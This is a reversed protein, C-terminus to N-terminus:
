DGASDEGASHGAQRRLEYRAVAAHHSRLQLRRHLLESPKWCPAPITDDIFELLKTVIVTQRTSPLKSVFNVLSPPVFEVLGGTRIAAFLESLM